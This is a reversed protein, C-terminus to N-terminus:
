GVRERSRSCSKSNYTVRAFISESLPLNGGRLTPDGLKFLFGHKGVPNNYTLCLLSQTVELFLIGNQTVSLVSLPASFRAFPSWHKLFSSCYEQSLLKEKKGENSHVIGHSDFFSKPTELWIVIYKKDHWAKSPSLQWRQWPLSCILVGTIQGWSSPLEWWWFSPMMNFIYKSSQLDRFREKITRM